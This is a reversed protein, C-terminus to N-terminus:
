DDRARGVASHREYDQYRGEQMGYKHMWRPQYFSGRCTFTKAWSATFIKQLHPYFPSTALLVAMEVKRFCAVLLLPTMLFFILFMGVRYVSM